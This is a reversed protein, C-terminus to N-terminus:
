SGQWATLWIREQRHQLHRAITLVSHRPRENHEVNPRCAAAVAVNVGDLHISTHILKSVYKTRCVYLYIYITILSITIYKAPFSEFAQVLGASSCGRFIPREVVFPNHAIYAHNSDRVIDTVQMWNSPPLYVATICARKVKKMTEKRKVWWSWRHNTPTLFCFLIM